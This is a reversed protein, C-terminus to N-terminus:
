MATGNLVNVPKVLVCESEWLHFLMQHCRREVNFRLNRDDDIEISRKNM